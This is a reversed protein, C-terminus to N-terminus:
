PSLQEFEFDDEKNKNPPQTDQAYTLTLAAGSRLTKLITLYYATTYKDHKNKLIKTLFSQVDISDTSIKNVLSRVIGEDYLIQDIGIRIGKPITAQAGFHM